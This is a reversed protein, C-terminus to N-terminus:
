LKMEHKHRAHSGARVALKQSSSGCIGSGELGSTPYYVRPLGKAMPVELNGKNDATLTACTLLETVTKGAAYGAPISQTYSAGHAGKNSLVTVMKGKRMALTTTDNYIPWNQYTIYSSDDKIAQKRAANLETILKYLPANTNYKSLWLAERNYPDNGDTSGVAAYHQEQGEYIIPIGDTLMTFTVVNKALSMDPTLFAFRPNDHNESFTGILSTDKCESKVANITNALDSINGSTSSFAGILPFYIGYNLVGPLYDQYSCVWSSNDLDVEGIMYTGAADHFGSWFGTNVEFVTDLRLGDISYNSVLEKIWTQYGSAVAQTETRLDPLPVYKDGFWCEEINTKM